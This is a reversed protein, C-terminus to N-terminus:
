ERDERVLALLAIHALDEAPFLRRFAEGVTAEKTVEGDTARRQQTVDLSDVAHRDALIRLFQRQGPTKGLSRTAVGDLTVADVEARNHQDCTFHHAVLHDLHAEAEALLLLLVTKP